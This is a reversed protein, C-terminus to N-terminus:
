HGRRVAIWGKGIRKKDLKQHVARWTHQGVIGDQALGWHGQLEKVYHELGEKQGKTFGHRKNFLVGTHVKNYAPGHAYLLRRFHLVWKDGKHGPVLTPHNAWPAKHPRPYQGFDRRRAQDLDVSVGGVVTGNRYQRLNAGHLWAGFSWAYTQWTYGVLGAARLGVCVRFSGYVGSRAKLVSHVGQFYAKVATWPVDTDVAFYIPIAGVGRERAKRAAEEADAKGASFGALARSATTEWVLVVAIGHKVYNAIEAASLDKGADHSIYGCVFSKGAAHLAGVSPKGWACDVGQQM